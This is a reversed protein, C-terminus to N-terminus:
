VEMDCEKKLHSVVNDIVDCSGIENMNYLKDALMSLLFIIEEHKM